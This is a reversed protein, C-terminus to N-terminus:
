AVVRVRRPRDSAAADPEPEVLVRQEDREHHEEEARHDAVREAAGRLEVGLRALVVLRRDGRELEDPGAREPELGELVPLALEEGDARDDAEADHEALAAGRLRLRDECWPM